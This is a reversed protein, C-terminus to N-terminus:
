LLINSSHYDVQAGSLVKTLLDALNDETAVKHIEIFGSAVCERIKHFSIGNHKKKQTSEPRTGNHVVSQNDCPLITPGDLPIGFM